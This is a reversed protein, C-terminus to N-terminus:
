IEIIQQVRVVRRLSCWLVLIATKEGEGAGRSLNWDSEAIFTSSRADVIVSLLKDLSPPSTSLNELLDVEM